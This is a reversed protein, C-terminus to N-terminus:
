TRPADHATEVTIERGQEFAEVTVLAVIAISGVEVLPGVPALDTVIMTLLMAVVGFLAPLVSLTGQTVGAAHADDSEIWYELDDSAEALGGAMRLTKRAFADVAEQVPGAFPRTLRM